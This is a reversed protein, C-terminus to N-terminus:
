AIDPAVPDIQLTFPMALNQEHTAGELLVARESVSGFRDLSELWEDGNAIDANNRGQVRVTGRDAAGAGLGVIAVREGPAITLAQLRFPRLAQYRKEVDTIELVPQTANPMEDLAVLPDPPRAPARRSIPSHRMPCRSQASGPRIIRPTKTITPGVRCASEWSSPSARTAHPRRRTTIATGCKSPRCAEPWSVPFRTTWVCSAQIRLRRSAERPGSSRRSRALRRAAAPCSDLADKAWCCMSRRAVIRWTVPRSSRMPSNRGALRGARDARPTPSSRVLRSRM